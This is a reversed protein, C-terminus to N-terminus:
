YLYLYMIKINIVNLKTVNLKSINKNEPVDHYKM